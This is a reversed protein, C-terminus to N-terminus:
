DEVLFSISNFLGCALSEQRFSPVIECGRKEDQRRTVRLLRIIPRPLHQARTRTLPPDLMRIFLNQNGSLSLIWSPFCGPPVFLEWVFQQSFLGQGM